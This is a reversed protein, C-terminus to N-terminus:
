RLMGGLRKEDKLINLVVEKIKRAMERTQQDQNGGEQKETEKGNSDSNITINLTGVASLKEVLEDLKAAIVESSDTGDKGTTNLQQLKNTGINQAAQKSIIFEGGNLMTPVNDGMGNGNVIGGAAKPQQWSYKLPNANKGTMLYESGGGKIGFLNNGQSYKLATPTGMKDYSAGYPFLENYKEPSMQAYSNTKQNWIQLGGAPSSITSFDKYGASSFSNFLGGRTETQGAANTMTGGTFAGGLKQFFTANGGSAQNTASFGKAMSSGLAGIGMMAVSTAAQRILGQYAQRKATRAEEKLREQEKRIEELQVEKQKSADIDSFYLDLAKQKAELYSANRSNGQDRLAFLSMNASGGALDVSASNPSTSTIKDFDTGATQQTAFRLLNEAGMISGAGNQGPTYFGREGGQQNNAYFKTQALM